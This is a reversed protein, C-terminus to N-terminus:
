GNGNITVRNSNSTGSFQNFQVNSTVTLSSSVNLTVPASVGSMNIANAFDTWNNYNTGGTAVANNLTYTGSLQALAYGPASLGFCLVAVRCIRVLKQKLTYNKEM